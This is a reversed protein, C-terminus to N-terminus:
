YLIMKRGMNDRRFGSFEPIDEAKIDSLNEKIYQIVQNLLQSEDEVVVGITERGFMGRGSYKLRVECDEGSYEICEKLFKAQEITM